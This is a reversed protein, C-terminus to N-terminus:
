VAHYARYSVSAARDFADLTSATQQIIAEKSLQTSSSRQLLKGIVTTTIATAEEPANQRHGLAQLVSAYLRDRQFPAKSGDTHVFEYTSELDIREISTFVVSCSLCRRRRWTQNLRKQSRSNVVQTKNRCIICLM